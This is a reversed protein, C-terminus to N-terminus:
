EDCPLMVSTYEIHSLARRPTSMLYIYLRSPPPRWQRRVPTVYLRLRMRPTQHSAVRTSAAHACFLDNKSESFIICVSRSEHCSRCGMRHSGMCSRGVVWWRSTSRGKARSISCSQRRAAQHSDCATAWRLPRRRSQQLHQNRRRRRKPRAAQRAVAAM